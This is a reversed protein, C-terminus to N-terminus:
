GRFRAARRGGRVPGRVAGKKAGRKFDGQGGMGREDVFPNRRGRVYAQYFASSEYYGDLGKFSSSEDCRYLELLAPFLPSDIIGAVRAAPLRPLAAPLMHNKVLFAVDAALAPDFGLRELFHRAERAGLEAHGDFRRGGSPAALPKGADHFLLALSLRLDWTGGPAPKRYRFTERTHNWVNGEPHHEKSQEVRDLAALVPWVTELFGTQRLLELGRGPRPSLMLSVLLVRLTENEPVRGPAPRHLVSAIDAITREGAIGDEDDGGDYRSLILAADMIEAWGGSADARDTWWSAGSAPFFSPPQGDRLARIVPYVGWPDYFRRTDPDWTLSLIGFAAPRADEAPTFYCTGGDIDLAAAAVATGPFRVAEFLRALEAIGASTELRAFPLPARDFYRDLASFSVLRVRFGAELLAGCVPSVDVTEMM